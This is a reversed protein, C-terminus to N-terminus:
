GNRAELTNNQQVYYRLHWCKKLNQKVTCTSLNGSPPLLHHRHIIAHLRNQAASRQKVLKHRHSVLSRLERVHLPPVWVEPVLNVALLRALTLADKKDTKVFSAAILRVQHPNAVTVRAVLPKLLDHVYWANTTAELVVEDTPRLHKGAWSEFQALPIRRPSLVTEQGANLAGVMIDRKHVDLGVYRKSTDTNMM